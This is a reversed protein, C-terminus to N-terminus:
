NVGQDDLAREYQRRLEEQARRLKDFFESAERARQAREAARKRNHDCRPCGYRNCPLQQICNSTISSITMWPILKPLNM